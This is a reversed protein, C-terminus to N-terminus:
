WARCMPECAGPVTSSKAMPDDGILAVAGGLPATGSLNGHRIADAARDLGPAKGYWFGTM